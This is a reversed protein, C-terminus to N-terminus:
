PTEAPCLKVALIVVAAGPVSAFVWLRTHWAVGLMVLWFVAALSVKPHRALTGVGFGMLLVAVAVTSMVLTSGSENGLFGLAWPVSTWLVAHWMLHQAALIRLTPGDTTIFRQALPVLLTMAGLVIMILLEGPRRNPAQLSLLAVMAAAIFGSLLECVLASRYRRAGRTCVAEFVACVFLWEALLLIVAPISVRHM